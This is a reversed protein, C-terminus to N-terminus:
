RRLGMADNTVDEVRLAASAMLTPGANHLDIGVTTATDIARDSGTNTIVSGFAAGTLHAITIDDARLETRGLAGETQAIIGHDTVAGADVRALGAEIAGPGGTSVAVTSATVAPTVLIGTRGDYTVVPMATSATTSGARAAVTEGARPAYVSLTPAGQDARFVTRLVVAGNLSTQTQVTLAVDIGSPLTFGGRMTALVADPVRAAAIPMDQALLLLLVALSM